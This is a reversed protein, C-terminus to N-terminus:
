GHKIKRGGCHYLRVRHTFHCFLFRLLRIRRPNQVPEADVILQQGIGDILVIERRIVDRLHRADRGLADILRENHAAVARAHKHRDDRTRPLKVQLSGGGCAAVLTRLHHMQLLDKVERAVHAAPTRREARLFAIGDVAVFAHHLLLVNTHARPPAALLERERGGIEDTRGLCLRRVSLVVVDGLVRIM